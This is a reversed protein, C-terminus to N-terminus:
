GQYLSAWRLEWDILDTGDKDNLFMAVWDRSTQASIHQIHHDDRSYAVRFGRIVNPGSSDIRHASDLGVASRVSYNTKAGMATIRSNPIYAYRVTWRFRDDDNKDNYMVTLLGDQELVGIEHLHHDFSDEECFWFAFGVLVFQHTTLGPDRIRMSCRGGRCIDSAIEIGVGREHVVQHMVQYGFTEKGDDDQLGVTINGKVCIPQAGRRL